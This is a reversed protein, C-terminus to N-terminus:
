DRDGPIAAPNSAAAHLRGGTFDTRPTDARARLKEFEGPAFTNVRSGDINLAGVGHKQANEAFTGDLPKLALLVPEWAPKLATGYGQWLKADETAPATVAITRTERQGASTMLREDGGGKPRTIDHEERESLVEREAGASADIAKSLDLSKPFGSGYLWMLCDRLEFGADEIACALRHHTRTGGFALLPAGPKMEQLLPQWYDVGPVAHDWGKGMFALGYPPDTLCADFPGIGPLVERCDGHYITCLADEYYPKM